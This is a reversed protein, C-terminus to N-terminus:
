KKGSEKKLVAPMPKDPGFSLSLYKIITEAEDATLPTGRWIMENVTRRWRDATKRQAVTNRLNHCQVCASLIIARAEGEPLFMAGEPLSGSDQKEQGITAPLSVAVGVLLLLLLLGTQMSSYLTKKM